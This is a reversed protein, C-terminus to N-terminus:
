RNGNEDGNNLIVPHDPKNDAIMTYFSLPTITQLQPMAKWKGNAARNIQGQNAPM